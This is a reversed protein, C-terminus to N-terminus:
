NLFNARNCWVWARKAFCQGFFPHLDGNEPPKRQPTAVIQKGNEVGCDRYVALGIM